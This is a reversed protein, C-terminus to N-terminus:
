QQKQVQATRRRGARQLWVRARVRVRVRARVRAWVRVRVRNYRPREDVDPERFGV